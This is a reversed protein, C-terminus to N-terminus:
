TWQLEVSQTAYAARGKASSIARAALRAGGFAGLQAVSVVFVIRPFNMADAPFALAVLSPVLAEGVAGAVVFTSAVRGSVRMCREAHTLVSPFISAHSLGLAAVATWALASGGSGMASAAATPAHASGSADDAAVLMSANTVAAKGATGNHGATPTLLLLAAAAVLTGIMDLAIMTAPRLRATLPIALLRGLALGAWYISNLGHAASLSTGLYERAFAFLFGGCSVEGGVYFLLVLGSCLVLWHEARRAGAPHAAASAASTSTAPEESGAESGALPPRPGRTPVLPVSSAVMAVSTAYFAWDFADPDSALRTCLEILLPSLVAGLAFSFHMAQMYPEVRGAGHLWILLVNGGTDLFGMCVGQTVIAVSLAPVARLLPVATNGVVCALNGLLLPVHPRSTRDFQALIYSLVKACL